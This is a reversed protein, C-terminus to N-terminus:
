ECISYCLVHGISPPPPVPALVHPFPRAFSEIYIYLQLCVCYMHTMHDPAHAVPHKHADARVFPRGVRVLALLRLSKCVFISLPTPALYTGAYCALGIASSSARAIRYHHPYSSSENHSPTPPLYHITFRIAIIFDALVAIMSVDEIIVIVISFGEMRIKLITITLM